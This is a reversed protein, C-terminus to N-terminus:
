RVFAAKPPGVTVINITQLGAAIGKADLVKAQVPIFVDTKVTANQVM